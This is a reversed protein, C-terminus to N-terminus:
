HKADKGREKYHKCWDTCSVFLGRRKLRLCIGHPTNGETFFRCYRCQRGRRRIDDITTKLWHLLYRM